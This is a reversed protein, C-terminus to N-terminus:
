DDGKSLSYSDSKSEYCTVIWLAPQAVLPTLPSDPKLGLPSLPASAEREGVMLLM